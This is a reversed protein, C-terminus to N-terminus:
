RSGDKADIAAIATAVANPRERDFEKLGMKLERRLKRDADSRKQARAQAKVNRWQSTIKKGKGLEQELSVFACDVCSDLWEQPGTYTITRVLKPM